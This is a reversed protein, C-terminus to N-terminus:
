LELAMRGAWAGSDEIVKTWGLGEYFAVAGHNSSHVTLHMRAFGGARARETAEEMLQRGVGVGQASPSVAIALIGFSRDPVASPVEMQTPSSRAAVLRAALMIRERGAARTVVTPHMLVCRSLFWKEKKVFGITSGRFVGGFLMGVLEGDGRTAALATVLHPGTLQWRYNRRVAEAGLWGLVSEPFADLHLRAVDSLQAETLDDVTVECSPSATM